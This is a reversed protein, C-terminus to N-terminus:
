KKWCRLLRIKSQAEVPFRTSNEKISIIARQFIVVFQVLVADGSRGLLFGGSRMNGSISLLLSVKVM